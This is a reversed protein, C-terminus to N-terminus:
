ADSLKQHIYDVSKKSLVLWEHKVVDYVNLGEARLTRVNPINRGSLEFNANTTDVFLAKKVKLAARMKVFDKTKPKTFKFEDIVIIKESKLRDSLASKLALRAVKKPTRQFYSRPVPGFNQGGGVWQPARISGQRANGTGKQKYPKKGGGRVESRTKTKATGQRRSALQGVIVQHVVPINVKVGFISDNLEVSGVKKGEQNLVDITAM